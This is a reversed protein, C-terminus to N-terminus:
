GDSSEGRLSRYLAYSWWRWVVLAFFGVAAVIAEHVGFVLETVLFIVGTFALAIAVSGAIAERNGKRLMYDKDGERFRLRHHAAPALLLVLAVGTSVLTFYYVYRLRDNLDAFQGSFRIALLFGFLVEAGPILSRLEELLEGHERELREKLEEQKEEAEVREKTRDPDAM